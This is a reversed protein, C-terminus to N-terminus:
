LSYLQNQKRNLQENLEDLILNKIKCCIERPVLTYVNQVKCGYYLEDAHILSLSKIQKKLVRIDDNLKNAQKLIEETM